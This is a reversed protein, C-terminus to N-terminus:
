TPSSKQKHTNTTSINCVDASPRHCTVEYKFTLYKEVIEPLYVYIFHLFEYCFLVTNLDVGHNLINSTKKKFQFATFYLIM